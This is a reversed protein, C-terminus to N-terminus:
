KLGPFKAAAAARKRQTDLDAETLPKSFKAFVFESEEADPDLPCEDIEKASLTVKTPIV